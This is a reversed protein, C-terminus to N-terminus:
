CVTFEQGIIYHADQELQRNLDTNVPALLTGPVAGPTAATIVWDALFQLPTIQALPFSSTPVGPAPGTLNLNVEHYIIGESQLPQFQDERNWLAFKPIGNAGAM